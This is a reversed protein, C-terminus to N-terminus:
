SFYYDSVLINITKIRRVLRSSIGEIQRILIRHMFSNNNLIIMVGQKIIIITRFGMVKTDKIISSSNVEKKRVYIKWHM